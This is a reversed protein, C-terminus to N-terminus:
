NFSGRAHSNSAKLKLHIYRKNKKYEFEPCGLGQLSSLRSYARIASGYGDVASDYAFTLHDCDTYDLTMRGWPSLAFDAPDFAGGWATFGTPYLADITVSHGEPQGTGFIWMQDGALDYTFFIALVGGDPLWEIVLGEGNRGPDYFSGSLGTNPAPPGGCGAVHSIREASTILPEYGLADNGSFNMKGPSATADCDPFVTSMGGWDTFAIDESDFGDGFRAGVPRLLDTTVLSNGVIDAVGLLWAPGSGDPRFTFTYIVARGDGLIEIYSGEGNRLPNYFAGSHGAEIRGPGTIEVAGADCDFRGDGNGDQPRGLGTADQWHCPLRPGADEEGALLGDPGSDIAPSGALPAMFGLPDPDSLMPDVM